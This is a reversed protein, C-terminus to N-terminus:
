RKLPMASPQYTRGTGRDGQPTYHPGTKTSQPVYPKGTQQKWWADWQASLERVIDPQEKSLDRTELPDIRTDYLEWGDGDVEALTWEGTRIARNDMYQFFMPATRQWSEGRLLPLFSQGDRAPAALGASALLTPMLDTFHVPQTEIRGRGTVGAPWHVVGGTTVGGAHQSIKYLRWPAGCAHAWGFGPQYNSGRDGPLKGGALM